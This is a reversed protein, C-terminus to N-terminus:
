NFVGVMKLTGMIIIVSGILIVLWEGAQEEKKGYRYFGLGANNTKVVSEVFKKRFGIVSSAILIILLGGIVNEM